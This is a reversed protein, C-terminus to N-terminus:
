CDAKKKKLMRDLKRRFCQLPRAVLGVRHLAKRREPGGSGAAPCQNAREGPVARWVVGFHKPIWDEEFKERAMALEEIEDMGAQSVVPTQPSAESQSLSSHGFRRVLKIRNGPEPSESGELDLGANESKSAEVTFSCSCDEM